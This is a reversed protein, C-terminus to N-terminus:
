SAKMEINYSLYTRWGQKQAFCLFMANIGDSSHTLGSYGPLCSNAYEVPATLKPLFRRSLNRIELFSWLVNQTAPLQFRQIAKSIGSTNKVQWTRRRARALRCVDPLVAVYLHQPTPVCTPDYHPRGGCIHFTKRSHWLIFIYWRCIALMYVVEVRLSSYKFNTLFDQASLAAWFLMLQLQLERDHKTFATTQRGKEALIDTLFGLQM